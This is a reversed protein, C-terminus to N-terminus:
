LTPLTEQYVYELRGDRLMGQLVSILPVINIHDGVVQAYVGYAPNYHRVFQASRAVLQTTLWRSYEETRWLRGSRYILGSKARAVAADKTKRSM